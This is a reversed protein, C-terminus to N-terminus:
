ARTHVRARVCKSPNLGSMTGARPQREVDNRLDQKNHVPKTAGNHRELISADMRTQVQTPSLNSSSPDCYSLNPLKLGHHSTRASFQMMQRRGIAAQEKQSGPM